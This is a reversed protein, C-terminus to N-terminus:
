AEDVGEKYAVALADWTVPTEGSASVDPTYDPVTPAPGWIKIVEDYNEADACESEMIPRGSPSNIYAKRHKEGNIVTLASASHSTINTLIM